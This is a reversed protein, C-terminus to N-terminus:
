IKLMDTWYEKSWWLINLLESIHWRAMRVNVIWPTIIVASRNESQPCEVVSEVSVNVIWNKKLASIIEPLCQHERRQQSLRSMLTLDFALVQGLLLLDTVMVIKMRISSRDVRVTLTQYTAAAIRDRLIKVTCKGLVVYHETWSLSRWFDSCLQNCLMVTRQWLKSEQSILRIM